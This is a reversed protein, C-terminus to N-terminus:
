SVWKMDADRCSFLRSEAELLVQAVNGCDDAQGGLAFLGLGTLCRNV